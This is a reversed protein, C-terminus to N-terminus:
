GGRPNWPEEWPYPETFPGFHTVGEGKWNLKADQMQTLYEFITDGTHAAQQSENTYLSANARDFVAMASECTLKIVNESGVVYEMVDMFGSWVEDPDAVLAGDGDMGGLYITIPRLYYDQNEAEDMLSSDLGSLMLTIAYPSIDPGEAIADIAGFDGVGLYPNGGWTITGIGNHVYITGSDFAMAVFIIPRFVDDTSATVLAANIDRSM